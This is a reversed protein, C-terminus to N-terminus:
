KSDSKTWAVLLNVCDSIQLSIQEYQKKLICANEYALFSIYALLRLNVYADHQYEKRKIKNKTEDKKLSNARFMNEIIDLCYNHMRNVFTFRFKQPSKSTVTIIYATLKKMKTIVVLESSDYRLMLNEEIGEKYTVEAKKKVYKKGLADAVSKAVEVKEQIEMKQGPVNPIIKPLKMGKRSGYKTKDLDM